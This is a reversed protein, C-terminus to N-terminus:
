LNHLFLLIYYLRRCEKWEVGLSLIEQPIEM